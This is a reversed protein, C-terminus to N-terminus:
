APRDRAPAHRERHEEVLPQPCRRRVRAARELIAEIREAQLRVDHSEAAARAAPNPVASGSGGHAGAHHLRTWRISSCARGEPPVFEAPGGVRPRSWPAGEPGHSRPRAQGFPEVLSPQCVVPRRWGHPTASRRAPRRWSGSAAGGPSRLGYLGTASSRSHRTATRWGASPRRSGCSTRATSSPASSCTAPSGPCRCTRRRCLPPSFSGLDVGCDVVQTKGRAEPVATWLRDRLYGSVAIVAEARTCVGGPRGAFPSTRAHTPGRGARSCDSRAARAVLRGRHPGGPRPFARLRRGAPLRARCTARRALDVHGAGDEEPTSWRGRSRTGGRWSSASSARVFVGLDPDDPGPYM